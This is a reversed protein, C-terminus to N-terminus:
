FLTCNLYICSYTHYDYGGVEVDFNFLDRVDEVQTHADVGTKRPIYEPTVPRPLMADMNTSHDRM